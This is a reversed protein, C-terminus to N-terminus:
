TVNKYSLLAYDMQNPMLIVQHDNRRIMLIGRTQIRTYRHRMHVSTTM